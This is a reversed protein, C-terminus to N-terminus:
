CIYKLFSPFLCPFYCCRCVEKLKTNIFSNLDEEKGLECRGFSTDIVRLEPTALHGTTFVRIAPCGIIEVNDLSLWSFDENGLFFGMLSPLKKLRLSKLRPLMVIENVLKADREQEEVDVNAEKVIVKIKKCYSIDLKQLQLLSGVMSGTFVHELRDSGNISLDTLNPFELTMWPNNKWIYKLNDVELLHVHRLNPYKVVVPQLESDSGELAEFIEEVFYCGWVHIDELKQLQLLENSPIIKKIDCNFHVNMGIINHFYWRSGELTALCPSTDDLCSFPKEFLLNDFGSEVSLKGLNTYIYKLKPTIMHGSTFVMMQRCNCIHVDDLSPWRSENMGLFFGVLNPLDQLIISKLRPFVVVKASTMTQEEHEEKVIAKMINCQAINLEQLQKLSELTSFTFVHELRGCGRIKLAKLNFLQPVDIYKLRPITLTTNIRQTEFVEALSECYSIALRELKQMQGVVYSPIVSSLADCKWISIDRFYQCLSWGPVFDAQFFKLQDHATSTTTTNTNSFPIEGGGIRKLNPLDKLYLIDLHPFLNTSTDISTFPSMRENEDEDDRDSVVEEIVDCLIIQVGKLNCFLKAMLPSFLYKINKCRTLSITTLSHFLSSSEELQQKHTILFTNWNCKWVHSMCEMNKLKLDKLPQQTTTELKRSSTIEIEFVVNVQTCNEISIKGLHHLNHILYSPVVVNSITDGVQNVEEKSTVNIEQEQISKIFSANNMGNEGGNSADLTFINKFRMCDKIKIYEVDQLGCCVLLGSMSVGKIRWLENLKGLGHVHIKRLCISAEETECVHGLDINFIVDISNCYKVELEELHHLLSMPNRPFLDVVSDCRELTIVRLELIGIEEFDNPWIKTLKEMNHIKLKKLRSIVVEKNLLPQMASIDSSKSSAFISNFNPLSELILEELQPLEIANADNCLSMLKPLHGLSLFKLAQFKIEEVQVNESYVLTELVPCKTIQLYELKTLGNAVNIQFLYTLNECECIHLVRLNYFSSQHHHLSELLIEGLDNMGDVQLHLVETKEFLENMRSNLLECKNIVLMLTNMVLDKGYNEELNCGLSIKFRELKKLSMNKPLDNIDFFEIGLSTLNKSCEVLEDGNAHTFRIGKISNRFFKHTIMYLEELKVLNKLVGDDICLDYCGTLDLLRLEKLNGITSPLKNIRCHAFSLVELNFLDGISSYDFKSLCDHLCLTRLNISCQLSRFTPQYKMRDYAIVQLNKMDEYFDKPFKVSEYGHMLKLLSLNPFKFNIPLEFMGNCTLSIRKCFDNMHKAPLNSMTGVISMHEGKSCMDLVFDRVLDHMKVCGVKQSRILLNAHILREIYTNLKNRAHAISYVKNFLGLGWGYRVLDEIPIDFEEPFLGCLLFASKIEDEQLNKYSMEIVEHVVQYVDRDELCSLADIWADKSKDKLTVAITRIAIPLGCCKRVISEGIKYLEHDDNSIEVFKQFFGQAELEQIVDVKFISNIKVGMTTCVSEDRSTLLFKFGVGQNPLPSLGIDKLHVFKWVDDLIILIKNKGGDIKFEFHRRLSNSRASQSKGTLCVGFYDAVVDQIAITNMKEGIVVKVILNFLKDDEVAKKLKEMMTTKGVGGMGCLAVMQSKQDPQLAKLAEIFTRERSKFDNHEGSQTSIFAKM